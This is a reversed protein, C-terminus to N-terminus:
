TFDLGEVRKIFQPDTSSRYWQKELFAGQLNLKQFLGQGATVNSHFAFIYIGENLYNFRFAMGPRIDQPDM